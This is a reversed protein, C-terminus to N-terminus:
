PFRYGPDIHRIAAELRADKTGAFFAAWEPPIEEDPQIGAKEIVVGGYRNQVASMTVMQWFKGGKLRGANFQESDFPMSAAGITREGIVRGKPLQKILATLMEAASGTLKDVLAIVPLEPDQMREAQVPWAPIVWDMWEGYDLRGEGMKPRVQSYHLDKNLLRGGLFDVDSGGQNGRLDMIVGKLNGSDDKLDDLFQSVVDQIVTVQAELPGFAAPDLLIINGIMQLSSYFYLIYGPGGAIPIRGTIMKLPDDLMGPIVISGSRATSNSLYKKILTSYNYTAYRKSGSTTNWKSRFFVWDDETYGTRKQIWGLAPRISSFSSNKYSPNFMFENEYGPIKRLADFLNDDFAVFLHGDSLESTMEIFYGYATKCAEPFDEPFETGTTFEFAGLVDFKPKYEDYINDWYDPPLMDWFLYNHNIGSWFSQFIRPFDYKKEAAPDEAWDGPVVPRCSTMLVILVAIAAATRVIKM